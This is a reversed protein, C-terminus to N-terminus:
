TMLSRVLATFFDNKLSLVLKLSEVIDRRM